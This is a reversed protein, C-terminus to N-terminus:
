GFISKEILSCLIHGITIHAEQIRPTNKSPVSICLDAAEELKGGGSGSLGITKAGLSKALLIAEIVNKSGGSTSIGIVADGPRVLGEVQRAFVTEFGFDNSLCTLISTDTTLAVVPLPKRDKKYRGILEAAIHQSDAASGGNGFILVKNGAKFTSILINAAQEIKPLLSKILTKKIDISEELEAKILDKM